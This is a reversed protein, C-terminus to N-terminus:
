TGNLEKRYKEVVDDDLVLLAKIAPLKGAASNKVFNKSEKKSKDSSLYFFIEM